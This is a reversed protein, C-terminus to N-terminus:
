DTVHSVGREIRRLNERVQDWAVTEGRDAQAIAEALEAEMDPSLDFPEEDESVLVVVNTGEPLQVDTLLVRGDVVKGSYVAM